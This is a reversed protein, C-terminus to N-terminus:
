GVTWSKKTLAQQLLILLVVRWITGAGHLTLSTQVEIDFLCSNSTKMGPVAVEAAAVGANSPVPGLAM